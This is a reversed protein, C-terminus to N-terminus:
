ETSKKAAKAAKVRTPAEVMMPNGAPFKGEGTFGGMEYYRPPNVIRGHVQAPDTPKRVPFSEPAVIGAM